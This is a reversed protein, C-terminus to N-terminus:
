KFIEDPALNALSSKSCRGPFEEDSSAALLFWGHYNPLYDLFSQAPVQRCSTTFSLSPVKWRAFKWNLYSYALLASAVASM